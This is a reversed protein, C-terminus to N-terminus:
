QADAVTPEHPSDTNAQASAHAVVIESGVALKLPNAQNVFLHVGNVQVPANIDKSPVIQENFIVHGIGPLERRTNPPIQNPQAVGFIKLGSLGSGLTLRSRAGNKVAEQAVATVKGVTIAGDLLNLSDVSSTIRSMMGFASPGGFATSQGGGFTLISGGAGASLASATNTLTRGGSGECPLGVLAARGIQNQAQTSLTGSGQSSWGSGGLTVSTPTRPFGSSAHGLVIQSGVPLNFSNQHTVDLVLMDVAIQGSSAGNGGKSQRNLTLRGIGPLDVHTNSPVNAPFQRGAVKLNVFNTGSSNNLIQSANAATNAVATAADATVLGNLANLARINSTNRAIATTPNTTTFVSDIIAAITLVKGNDGASLSNVSNTITKGGTGHCSGPVLASRGLTSAVPGATSNAFSGYADGRYTGTPPAALATSAGVLSLCLIAIPKTTGPNIHDRLGNATASSM